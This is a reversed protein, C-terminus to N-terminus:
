SITSSPDARMESFIGWIDNDNQRVQQSHKPSFQAHVTYIDNPAYTVQGDPIDKYFGTRLDM